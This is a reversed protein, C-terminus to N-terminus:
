HMERLEIQENGKLGLFRAPQDEKQVLLGSAVDGGKVEDQEGKGGNM